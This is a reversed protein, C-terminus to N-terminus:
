QHACKHINIRHFSPPNICTLDAGSFEIALMSGAKYTHTFMEAVCETGRLVRVEERLWGRYVHFNQSSMKDFSSASSPSSSTYFYSCAYAPVCAGTLFPWSGSIFILLHNYANMVEASPPEKSQVRRRARERERDLKMGRECVCLFVYLCCLKCAQLYFQVIYICATRPFCWVCFVSGIRRGLVFLCKRVCVRLCCLIRCPSSM